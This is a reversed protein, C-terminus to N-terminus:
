PLVPPAPLVSGDPLGARRPLTATVAWGGGPVPGADVTGGLIAARERIGVLGFGEPALYPDVSAGDDRVALRILEDDGSVEIDVRTAGRAHRLANTCAEQAIRYLAVDVPPALGDLPIDLHVVVQPRSGARALGAIDSAVPLPARDPEHEDRLVGVLARLEDLARGAADEITALAAVARAPQTAAVAQGAQAQITIGALHHGLLDHLDRALEHRQHLRAQELDRLREAARLRMSAGLAASFLFFGYGANVEAV